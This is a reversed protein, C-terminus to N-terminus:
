PKLLQAITKMQIFLRFPQDIFPQFGYKEYFTKARDDKADAIIAYVALAQSAKLVRNFIDMLLYEGLRQGQTSQDVALRGILTAPVPYRPLKRLVELPLGDREFSAASLTYYGKVTTEGFPCAVFVRAMNRTEDQSAYHRIYTDLAEYGCRFHERHHKKTDFHEVSWYGPQSM